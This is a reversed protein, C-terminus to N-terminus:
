NSETSDVFLLTLSADICSANRSINIADKIIRYNFRDDNDRYYHIFILVPYRRTIHKVIKTRRFVWSHGNEM